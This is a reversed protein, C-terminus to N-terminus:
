REKKEFPRNYLDRQDVGHEAARRQWHRGGFRVFLWCWLRFPIFPIPSKELLRQAEAPLQSGDALADGALDLARMVHRTPPHGNGGQESLDRGSCLAEGAGLALSGAWTLHCRNAFLRCIALAPGCQGAEPFGNNGIVFFRKAPEDPRSGAHSAIAELARTVLFPLSDIYLPFSLILLDARDVACLMEDEGKERLVAATLTLEDTQWGHARLRELLYGGLVMSTSRQRRKPSGVILLARRASGPAPEAAAAPATPLPPLKTGFPLRDERTLLSRLLARQLQPPDSGVIVDAAFSPAHFNIANRGVLLRFNDAEAADAVPQVGIGVLRPYRAYRPAHHIEGRVKRFFPLTLPLWRDVSKKLEAAYGGFTVPSLLITLDSRAIAETLGQGADAEICVGPTELWCGFCGICHAMSLERLTFCSVRADTEELLEKLLALVPAMQGCDAPSGDLLVIQKRPM